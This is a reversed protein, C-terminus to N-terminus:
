GLNGDKLAALMRPSETDSSMLDDDREDGKSKLDYINTGAMIKM